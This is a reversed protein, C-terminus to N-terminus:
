ESVVSERVCSFLTSETMPKKMADLLGVLLPSPQWRDPHGPGDTLREVLRIAALEQLYRRATATPYRTAAAVATTTPPETRDPDLLVELMVRRQAPLTDQAVQFVTLYSSLAVDPEARVAALAQALLALQKALRGPGEPAPIYDIEGRQDFLVPSRAVATFEALAAIADLMQESLPPPGLPVTDLFAAVIERLGRRQDGERQRQAMARRALARAPASKVRYLLFREGLVQNLAYERDIIPTVGALLGVKGSWKFTKGNGFEKNFSGDYIERLQALIEAKKERYMTLVTGFDKMTVTKGDIKPLLSTETGKREFGSAFTQATLSSLPYIDAVDDLSRIVETKGGSPPAVLFAWLPDGPMRNAVVVALAVDLIEHPPGQEVPPLEIWRGFADHLHGLSPTM